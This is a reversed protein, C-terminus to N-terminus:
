FIVDLLCVFLIGELYRRLYLCCHLEQKLIYAQYSCTSGYFTCIGTSTTSLLSFAFMELGFDPHVSFYNVKKKNNRKKKQKKKQKYETKYIKLHDQLSSWM